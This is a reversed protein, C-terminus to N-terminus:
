ITELEPFIKGKELTDLSDICGGNCVDLYPCLQGFKGCSDPNRVAQRAGVTKEIEVCTPYLVEGVFEDLQDENRTTKVRNFFQACPEDLEESVRQVYSSITEDHLRVNAYPMGDKKYKRKDMPTATQRNKSPKKIVDYLVGTVNLGLSIAALMYMSIQYDFSLTSWYKSGLDVDGRATKHEVIYIQKSRAHMVIADIKGALRWHALSSSSFIGYAEPVPVCFEQEVALTVLGDSEWTSAYRSLLMRAIEVTSELEFGDLGWRKAEVPIIASANIINGDTENETKTKFFEELAKHMVKGFTLAHSQEKEV